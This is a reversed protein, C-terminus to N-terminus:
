LSGGLERGSYALENPIVGALGALIAAGPALDAKRDSKSAHGICAIHSV